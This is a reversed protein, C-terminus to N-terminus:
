NGGRDQNSVEGIDCSAVDFAAQFAIALQCAQDLAADSAPGFDCAVLIRHPRIM